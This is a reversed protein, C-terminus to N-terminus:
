KKLEEEILDKFAQISRGKPERGNILFKPVSRRMGTDILQQKEHNIQDQLAPDEMDMKLQNIDLGLQNAFQLPLDENEKLKRYNAFILRYMEKYAGQRNAALAYLAAKNAQKHSRLPYNKIVVKVDKPYSALLDDVM